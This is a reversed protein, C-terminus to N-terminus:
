PNPPVDAPTPEVITTKTEMKTLGARSTPAFRELVSTGMGGLALWLTADVLVPDIKVDIVADTIALGIITLSALTAILRKHSKGTNPSILDVFLNSM